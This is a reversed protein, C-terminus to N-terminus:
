DGRFSDRDARDRGFRGLHPEQIRPLHCRYLGAFTQYRNGWTHGETTLTVAVQKKTVDDPQTTILGRGALVSNAEDIRMAKDMDEPQTRTTLLPGLDQRKDLWEEEGVKGIRKVYGALLRREDEPLWM